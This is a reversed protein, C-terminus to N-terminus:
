EAAANLEVELERLEEGILGVAAKLAAIRALISTHSKIASPQRHKAPDQTAKTALCYVKAPAGRGESMKRDSTAIVGETILQRCANYVRPEDWRLAKAIEKKTLGKTKVNLVELIAKRTGSKM